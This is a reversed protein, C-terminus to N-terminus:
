ICTGPLYHTSFATLTHLESDETSSSWVRFKLSQFMPARQQGYLRLDSRFDICFNLKQIRSHLWRSILLAFLTPIEDSLQSYPSCIPWIQVKPRRNQACLKVIKDYLQLLCIKQQAATGIFHEVSWCATKFLVSRDRITMLSNQSIFKQKKFLIQFKHFRLSAIPEIASGPTRDSVAFQLANHCSEDKM